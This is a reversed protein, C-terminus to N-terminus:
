PDAHMYVVFKIWAIFLAGPHPRENLVENIQEVLTKM